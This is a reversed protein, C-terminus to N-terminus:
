IDRQGFVREAYEQIASTKKLKLMEAVSLKLEEVNTNRLADKLKPIALPAVSLSTFGLGLLVKSFMLDSAMEGCVVTEKGFKGTVEAVSKLLALVAPHLPKYLYSVEENLRSIALTYQILDNTGLSFFDAEGALSELVLIASPVELLIGVQVSPYKGDGLGLSREIGTVIDRAELFEELDSIMPLIIRLDGYKSARLIARVQTRFMEPRNLSLRIGMLGLVAGEDGALVEGGSLEGFSLDLTRIIGVKGNLIEAFSRYVQYHEEESIDLSGKQLYLYETRFLGVGEAGLNLVSSVETVIETNGFINIVKGDRTVCSEQDSTIDRLGSALIKGNEEELVFGERGRSIKVIGSDGDVYLFDGSHIKDRINDIGSVLPVGYSRAIIAVHSTNGVKELVLAKIHDFPVSALQSLKLSGGVLIIDEDIDADAHDVNLKLLGAILRDVVDEFDAVRDKFYNDELASYADLLEDAVDRVAQEPSALKDIIRKEIEGLFNPDELMLLHADIVYSLERGVASELRAKDELCRAHSDAVADRFRKMESEVESENIRIRFIGSNFTEMRFAHGKAIGASLGQGKFENWEPNDRGMVNM